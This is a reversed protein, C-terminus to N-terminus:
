WFASLGISITRSASRRRTDECAFLAEHPSSCREEHEHSRQPFWPRAAFVHSGLFVFVICMMCIHIYM